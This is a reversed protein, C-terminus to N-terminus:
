PQRASSTACVASKSGAKRRASSAPLGVSSCTLSGVSTLVLRVVSDAMRLAASRVAPQAGVM